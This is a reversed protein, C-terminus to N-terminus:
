EGSIEMMKLDKRKKELWRYVAAHPAGSLLDEVAKKAVRVNEVRGIVSITKGYVSMFTETHEEILRRTKGGEGIIRGKIRIAKNKSKGLYDPLNLIEIAYDHHLLLLAIEPNFGRGVAKVIERATYMGLSDDGTLTVDGEASDIDLRAHTAEEIDHKVKGKLGILVAIREKPIRIEYSFVADENAIAMNTEILFGKKFTQLSVKIYRGKRCYVM